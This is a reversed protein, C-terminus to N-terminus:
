RKARSAVPWRRRVLEVALDAVDSAVCAAWLAQAEPGEPEEKERGGPLPARTESVGRVMLMGIPQRGRHRLNEVAKAALLGKRELIISRRTAESIEMAVKVYEPSPDGKASSLAAVKMARAPACGVRDIDAERGARWEDSLSLAATFLGGDSRYCNGLDRLEEFRELDFDCILPVVGVAGLPSENAVAIATGLVLVYRPKWVETSIRMVEEAKASVDGELTGVIITYISDDRVGDLYGRSWPTADGARETLTEVGQLRRLIEKETLGDTAMVVLDIPGTPDALRIEACSLVTLVLLACLCSRLGSSRLSRKPSEDRQLAAREEAHPM